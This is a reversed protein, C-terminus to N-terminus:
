SHTNVSVAHEKRQRLQKQEYVRIYIHTSEKIAALAVASQLFIDCKQQCRVQNNKTAVGTSVQGIM